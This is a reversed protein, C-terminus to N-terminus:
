PSAYLERLRVRMEEQSVGLRDLTGQAALSALYADEGITQYACTEARWELEDVQERLRRQQDASLGIDGHYIHCVEHTAVHRLSALTAARLFDERVHVTYAPLDGLAGPMKPLARVNAVAILRDTTSAVVIGETVGLAEAALTVERAFAALQEKLTDDASSVYPACAIVLAGLAIRAHKPM